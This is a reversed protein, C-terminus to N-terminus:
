LFADALRPTALRAAPPRACVFLRNYRERKFPSHFVRRVQNSKRVNLDSINLKLSRRPHRSYVSSILQIRLIFLM